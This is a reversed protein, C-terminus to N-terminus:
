REKPQAAPSSAEEAEEAAAARGESIQTELTVCVGKKLPLAFVEWLGQEKCAITM